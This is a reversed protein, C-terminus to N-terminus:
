ELDKTRLAHAIVAAINNLRYREFIKRLYKDITYISKNMLIATQAKSKGQAIHKLINKEIPTLM